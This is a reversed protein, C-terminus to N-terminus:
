DSKVEALCKARFDARRVSFVRKEVGREKLQLVSPKSFAFDDSFPNKESICTNKREFRVEMHRYSKDCVSEAYLM